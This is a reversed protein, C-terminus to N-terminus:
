LLTIVIDCKFFCLSGHIPYNAWLGPILGRIVLTLSSAKVVLKFSMGVLLLVILLIVRDLIHDFFEWGKAM